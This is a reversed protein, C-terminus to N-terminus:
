PYAHLLDAVPGGDAPGGRPDRVVPGGTLPDDALVLLVPDRQGDFTVALYAVGGPPGQRLQDAVAALRDRVVDPALGAPDAAREVFHGGGFREELVEKPDRKRVAA